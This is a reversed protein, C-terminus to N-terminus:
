FKEIKKQALDSSLYNRRNSILVFFFKNLRRIISLAFHYKRNILHGFILAHNLQTYHVTHM